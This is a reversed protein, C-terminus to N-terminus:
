GLTGSLEPDESVSVAQSGTGHTAAPERCGRPWGGVRPAGALAGLLARGISQQCHNLSASSAWPPMIWGGWSVSGQVASGQSGQVTSASVMELSRFPRSSPQPWRPAHRCARVAWGLGLRGGPCPRPRSRPGPIRLLSLM